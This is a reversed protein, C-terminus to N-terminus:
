RSSFPSIYTGSDGDAPYLIRRLAEANGRQEPPLPDHVIIPSRNNLRVQVTFRTGLERRAVMVMDHYYGAVDRINEVGIREAATLGAHQAALIQNAYQQTHSLFTSAENFEFFLPEVLSSDRPLHLIIDPPSTLDPKISATPLEGIDVMHIGNLIIRAQEWCYEVRAMNRHADIVEDSEVLPALNAVPLQQTEKHCGSVTGLAFGLLLKAAQIRTSQHHIKPQKKEIPSM